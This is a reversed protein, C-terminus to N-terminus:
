GAVIAGAQFSGATVGTFAVATHDATFVYVANTGGYSEAVALYQTAGAHATHVSTGDGYAYLYASSFAAAESSNAAGDMYTIVNATTGAAHGTVVIHDSAFDFGAIHDLNTEGAGQAATSDGVGVLVTDGANSAHGTLTITDAGPGGRVTDFGGFSTVVIDDGLDGSLYNRGVMDNAASVFDDGQGGYLSDAGGTANLTDSGMNGFAYRLQGPQTATLTITDSDQGGFLEVGGSGAYSLHDNGQNGLLIQMSGTGATAGGVISDDGLGGLVTEFGAGSLITDNGIDGSIYNPANSGSADVVDDGQGGYVSAGQSAAGLIIRDDGMNGLLQDHGAGAVLTDAGGGGLVLDGGKGAMIFDDGLDGSIYNPHISASADVVDDGQGGYVSAGQSAAGVVIHDDGMNGLLQDHGSGAVLTDAGDGGLLTDGASGATLSDGNTSGTLTGPTAGGTQTSGTPATGGGGAMTDGGGGGGMTPAAGLTLQALIPDHDSAAGAGNPDTAAHALQGTNVHVDDFLAGGVLNPTVLLNDLQESDGEFNYSYREAAPLTTVLNVLTPQGTTSNTQGLDTLAKEFYFGNFDGEVLIKADPNAAELGQMYHLVADAQATRRADGSIVPPQDQGYLEDSGGRSYDHVDIVTVTQGNFVFDAALPERSNHFTGGAQDYPANPDDVVVLARRAGRERGVVQRDGLEVGGVGLDGELARAM